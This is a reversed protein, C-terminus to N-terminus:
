PILLITKGDFADNDLGNALRIKEPNVAYKKAISWLCDDKCPYCIILEGKNKLLPLNGDTELSSVLMQQTHETMVGGIGIVFDAELSGEKVRVSCDSINLLLDPVSNKSPDASFDIPIHLLVPADIALIEGSINAGTIDMVVKANAYFKGDAYEMSVSHIAANCWTIQALDKIDARVPVTINSEQSIKAQISDLHTKTFVPTCACSESFADTIIECEHSDYLFGSVKYKIILPITKSSGYPDFSVAPEASCIDIYIYSSANESFRESHIVDNLVVTAKCSAYSANDPDDADEASVEYLINVPVKAEFELRGDSLVSSGGAFRASTYIVEGASPKDSDFSIQVEQEFYEEPIVTKTCVNKKQKLFCMNEQGDDIVFLDKPPAFVSVSSLITCKVSLKRNTVVSVSSSMVHCSPAATFEGDVNFPESFPVSLTQNFTANKIKGNFDSIYLICIRLSLETQAQSSVASFTCKEPQVDLKVIRSIGPLYEPLVFEFDRNTESKASYVLVEGSLVNQM